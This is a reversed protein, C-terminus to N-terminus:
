PSMELNKLIKNGGMSFATFLFLLVINEDSESSWPSIALGSYTDWSHNNVSLYGEFFCLLNFFM